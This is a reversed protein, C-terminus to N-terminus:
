KLIAVPALLRFADMILMQDVPDSRCLNRRRALLALPIRNQLMTLQATAM